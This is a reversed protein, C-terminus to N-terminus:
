QDHMLYPFLPGENFSTPSPSSASSPTSLKPRPSLTAPSCSSLLSL